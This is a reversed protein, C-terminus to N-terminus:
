ALNKGGDTKEFGDLTSSAPALEFIWSINKVVRTAHATRYSYEMEFKKKGFFKKGVKKNWNRINKQNNLHNSAAVNTL